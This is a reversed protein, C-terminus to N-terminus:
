EEDDKNRSSMHIKYNRRVNRYKYKDRIKLYAGRGFFLAINIFAAIICLKGWFPARILMICLYGATIYAIYKAKVPIIFFLLFRMEPYLLAFALFLSTNMYTNTALGSILGGIITGLIGTLYFINFSFSGWQRELHSGCLWYFYMSILMFLPNSDYPMIIFSIIRWIEGNLIRDRDFYFYSSIALEPFLWDFAFVIGSGIVIYLMLNQIAYRGIKRELKYM